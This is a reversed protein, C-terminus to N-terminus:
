LPSSFIYRSNSDAISQLPIRSCSQALNLHVETSPNCAQFPIYAFMSRRATSCIQIPQIAVLNPQSCLTLQYICSSSFLHLTRIRCCPGIAGRTIRHSAKQSTLREKLITPHICAHLAHTAGQEIHFSRLYTVNWEIPSPAPFSAM